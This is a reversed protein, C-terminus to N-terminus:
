NNFLSLFAFKLLDKRNESQSYNLSKVADKEQLLRLHWKYINLGCVNEYQVKLNPKHQMLKM